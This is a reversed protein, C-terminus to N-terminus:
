SPSVSSDHISSDKKLTSLINAELKNLFVAIFYLIVEFPMFVNFNIILLVCMSRSVMFQVNFKINQQSHM